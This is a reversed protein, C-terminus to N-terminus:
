KHCTQSLPSLQMVLIQRCFACAAIKVAAVHLTRFCLLRSMGSSMRVQKELFIGDLNFHKVLELGGSPFDSMSENVPRGVQRLLSLRQQQEQQQLSSSSAGQMDQNSGRTIGVNSSSYRSAQLAGEFDFFDVDDIAVENSTQLQQQQQQEQQKDHQQQQQQAPLPAPNDGATAQQYTLAAPLSNRLQHPAFLQDIDL